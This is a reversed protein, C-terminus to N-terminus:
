RTLTLQRLNLMPSRIAVILTVAKVPPPVRAPTMESGLARRKTSSWNFPRTNGTGPTVTNLTSNFVCLFLKITPKCRSM